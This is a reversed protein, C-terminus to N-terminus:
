SVREFLREAIQEAQEETVAGPAGNLVVQYAYVGSAFHIAYGDFPRGDGGVEAIAEPTAYEHIGLADPVGDVDFTEARAACEEVCPRGGDENLFQAAQRAADEVEYQVVLGVLHPKDPSHEGGSDGAFFRTSVLAAVLGEAFRRKEEASANKFVDEMTALFEDSGSARRPTEVPDAATGPAEAEGPVRQELTLQASGGGGEDDDGGGCAAGGILVAIVLALPVHKV